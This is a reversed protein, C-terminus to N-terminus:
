AIYTMPSSQTPCCTPTGKTVGCEEGVGACNYMIYMLFIKLSTTKAWNGKQMEWGRKLACPGTEKRMTSDFSTFTMQSWHNWNKMHHSTVCEDGVENKKLCDVVWSERAGYIRKTAVLDIISERRLNRHHLM